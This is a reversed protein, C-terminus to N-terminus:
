GAVIGGAIKCLSQQVDKRILVDTFDAGKISKVRGFQANTLQLPWCGRAFPPLSPALVHSAAPQRAAQSAKQWWQAGKVGERGGKIM